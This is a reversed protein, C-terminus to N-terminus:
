AAVPALPRAFARSRLRQRAPGEFLRYSLTSISLTLTLYLALAAPSSFNLAALKASVITLAYLAPIQWLYASYSIEGLWRLLRSEAARRFPGAAQALLVLGAFAIPATERLRGGFVFLAAGAAFLVFGLWLRTWEPWRATLQLCGGVFFCGLGEAFFVNLPGTLPLLGRGFSLLLCLAGFVLRPRAAAGFRRGFYFFAVYLGAEISLSWSPFNFSMTPVLWGFQLFGVNLLFHRWDNNDYRFNTVGARWAAAQLGAVVLLTLLHLPYLRSFRLWFFDRGGLRREGLPEAYADFFIYGSLMYFLPVALEGYGYLWALGAELPRSSVPALMHYHYVVVGLAALGRLADLSAIRSASMIDHRQSHLAV